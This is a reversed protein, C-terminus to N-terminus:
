EEQSNCNIKRVENLKDIEEKIIKYKEKDHLDYKYFKEQVKKISIKRTTAKELKEAKLLAQEIDPFYISVADNNKHTLGYEPCDVFLKGLWYYPFSNDPNLEMAEKLCLYASDYLSAACLRTSQIILQMYKRNSDVKVQPVDPPCPFYDNSICRRNKDIEFKFTQNIERKGNLFYPWSYSKGQLISDDFCNFVLISTEEKKFVVLTDGKIGLIGQQKDVTTLLIISDHYNYLNTYKPEFIIKGTAKEKLGHLKTDFV